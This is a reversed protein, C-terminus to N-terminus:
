AFTTREITVSCIRPLLAAEAVLRFSIAAAHNEGLAELAGSGGLVRPPVRPQHVIPILESGRREEFM